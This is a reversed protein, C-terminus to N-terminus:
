ATTAAPEKNRGLMSKINRLERLVNPELFWCALAYIAAGVVILIAFSAVAPAHAAELEHQLALCGAAMLATASGVGLLTRLIQSVRVGVARATLWVYLVQLPVSAAAYCAAVGTVGWRLGVAFASVTVVGELVAFWLITRTRDVAALVRTGLQALCRALSVLSLYRIVPITAHWKPGLIAHVFDPAVVILGVMAPALATAVLRLVRLWSQGIRHADHQLRSFTPFLTENIPTIVRGLPLFVFNFAVAYTGLAASGLFRGILINDANYRGFGVVQSGVLNMGYGGLDKLSTWSFMLSPRWPSVAWLMIVGTVGLVLQQVVLAWPGAGLLAAVIGAAGSLVAGVALRISILRFQMNRQLLAQQTTQLPICIFGVSVAMFLPRVQPEHYFDALQGSLAVGAGALLTGFALSAWFVTSCDAHTVRARQVLANGMSLDAITLVLTSFLLAMNALGYDHPTLLRVLILGVVIQTVQATTSSFLSWAVGHVVRHGM